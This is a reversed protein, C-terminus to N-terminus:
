LDEPRRQSQGAELFNTGENGQVLRVGGFAQGGADNGDNFSQSNMGIEAADARFGADTFEDDAASRIGGEIADAGVAEDDGGDGVGGLRVMRRRITLHLPRLNPRKSGARRERGGGSKTKEGSAVTKENERWEGSTVRWQEECDITPWTASPM